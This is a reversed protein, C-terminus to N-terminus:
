SRSRHSAPVAERSRITDSVAAPAVTRISRSPPEPEIVPRVAVPPIACGVNKSFGGGDVSASMAASVLAAARRDTARAAQLDPAEGREVLGARHM